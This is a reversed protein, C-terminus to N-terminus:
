LLLDEADQKNSVQQCLYQFITVAFRDYLTSEVSNQDTNLQQM